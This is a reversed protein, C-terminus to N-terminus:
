GARRRAARREVERPKPQPAPLRDLAQKLRVCAIHCRRALQEAHVCSESAFHRRDVGDRLWYRAESLSGIAISLYHAFERAGFRRFGEGINAPVSAASGRLQDRYRYDACAPPSTALLRYVEVKFSQALQWAALDEQRRVGM